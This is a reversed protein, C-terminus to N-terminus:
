YKQIARDFFSKILADITAFAALWAAVYLLQIKMKKKKSFSPGNKILM